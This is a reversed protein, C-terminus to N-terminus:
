KLGYAEQPWKQLTELQTCLWMHVMDRVEEDNAFWHGHLM